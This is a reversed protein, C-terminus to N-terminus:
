DVKEGPAQWVSILGDLRLRQGADIEGLLQMAGSPSFGVLRALRLAIGDLLGLTGFESEPKWDRIETAPDIGYEEFLWAMAENEGGIEDVLGATLAQRGTYVRGDGLRRAEASDLKRREAVLDLFWQYSDAVMERMVALAEESTPAFPSPEAKLPASKVEEVKIGLADLAQRIQAWQFIVGISGTVTNGRAIIRDAAIAVIYGGSAALTGLVAVVPKRSGAERITQYFAESGTTTGGPSDISLILAMVRDDKSAREIIDQKKRDDTILGDISIRAIQPGRGLMEEKGGILAAALFIALLAVVFAVARWISARRSLRRRDVLADADLSM